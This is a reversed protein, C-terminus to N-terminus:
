DLTRLESRPFLLVVSSMVNRSGHDSVLNRRLCDDHRRGLCPWEEVALSGGSRIQCSTAQLWMEPGLGECDAWCIASVYRVLGYKDPALDAQFCVASYLMIKDRPYCFSVLDASSSFVLSGCQQSVGRTCCLVLAKGRVFGTSPCQNWKAASATMTTLSSIWQGPLWSATRWMKRQSMWALAQVTEIGSSWKMACTM